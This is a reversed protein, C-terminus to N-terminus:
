SGTKVVKKIAYAVRDYAEFAERSPFQKRGITYRDFESGPALDMDGPGMDRKSWGIKRHHTPHLMTVCRHGRDPRIELRDLGESYLTCTLDSDANLLQALEGGEWRSNSVEQNILAKDVWKFDKKLCCRGRWNSKFDARLKDELGDVNARVVYYYYYFRLDSFASQVFIVDINRGEIKICGIIFPPFGTNTVLVRFGEPSDPDLLTVNVGIQLLHKCLEGMVEERDLKQYDDIASFITEKLEGLMKKIFSM